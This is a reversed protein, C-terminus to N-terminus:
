GWVDTGHIGILLAENLYRHLRRIIEFHRLWRGLGFGGFVFVLARAAPSTLAGDVFSRLVLVLVSVAQVISVAIVGDLRLQRRLGLFIM